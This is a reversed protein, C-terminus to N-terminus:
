LIKLKNKIWTWLRASCSIDLLKKDVEDRIDSMLELFVLEGLEKDTNKAFIIEEEQKSTWNASYLIKDDIVVYYINGFSNDDGGDNDGIKISIDRSPYRNRLFDLIKDEMTGKETSM